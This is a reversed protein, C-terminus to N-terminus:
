KKGIVKYTNVLEKKGKFQYSGAFEADIRDKVAEYVAVDAKNAMLQIAYDSKNMKVSSDTLSRFYLKDLADSANSILERLFIEKHTYISNIMMDLMKKSETKFAEKEM